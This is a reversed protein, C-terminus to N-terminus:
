DAPGGLQWFARDFYILPDAPGACTVQVVRGIILAHTGAEPTAYVECDFHCLAERLRPSGIQGPAPDCFEDVFKPNGVAAGREALQMQSDALISVGFKRSAKIARWSQTKRNLSVLLLPPDVSISCCASVTLGWPRGSVMTTVMVVGSALRAMGTKFSSGDASSYVGADQLAADVEVFGGVAYFAGDLGIADEIADAEDRSRSPDATGSRDTM